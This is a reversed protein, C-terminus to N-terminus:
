ENTKAYVSRVRALREETGLDDWFGRHIFTRLRGGAALEPFVDQELM